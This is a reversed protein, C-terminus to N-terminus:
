QTQQQYFDTIRPDSNSIEEYNELHPQPRSFVGVVFNNEIVVYAM